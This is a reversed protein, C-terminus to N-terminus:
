EMLKCSIWKSKHKLNLSNGKLTTQHTGPPDHSLRRLHQKDRDVLKKTKSKFLERSHQSAESFESGLGALLSLLVTCLHPMTLEFDNMSLIKSRILHFYSNVTYKLCSIIPFYYSFMECFSRILHFKSNVTGSRYCM